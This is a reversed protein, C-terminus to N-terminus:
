DLLTVSGDALIDAASPTRSLLNGDEHRLAAVVAASEEAPAVSVFVEAEMGDEPAITKTLRGGNVKENLSAIDDVGITTMPFRCRTDEWMITGGTCARAHELGLSHGIEHAIVNAREEASLRALAPRNIIIVSKFATCPVNHKCGKFTRDLHGAGALARPEDLVDEIVAIGPQTDGCATEGDAVLEVALGQIRAAARWQGFAALVAEEADRTLEDCIGVAIRRPEEWTVDLWPVNAADARQRRPDWELDQESGAGPQFAVTGLRWGNGFRPTVDLDVASGALGCDLRAAASLVELNYRGDIGVVAEGCLARGVWANIRTGSPANKGELTVRGSIRHVDGSQRAPPTPSAAPTASPTASPGATPAGSPAPAAGNPVQTRSTVRCNRDVVYRHTVTQYDPHESFVTYTGAGAVQFTWVGDAGTVVSEGTELLTKRMGEIPRGTDADVARAGFTCGAPQALAAPTTAPITGLAILAAVIAFLYPLVRGRDMSM